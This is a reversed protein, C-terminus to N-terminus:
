IIKELNKLFVYESLIRGYNGWMNEIIKEREKESNGINSCKLNEHIKSKSRFFPGIKKGIFEGFNSANKYGILKFIFFFTIIFIFEFFYKVIKM